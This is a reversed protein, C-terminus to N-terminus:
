SCDCHSFIWHIHARSTVNGWIAVGSPCPDCTPFCLFSQVFWLSPWLLSTGRLKFTATPIFCLWGSIRYFQFVFLFSQVWFGFTVHSNCSLTPSVFYFLFHGISFNWICFVSLWNITDVGQLCVVLQVPTWVGGGWTVEWSVSQLWSLSFMVPAGLLEQHGAVWIRPLIGTWLRVKPPIESRQGSSHAHAATDAFRLQWHACQFRM